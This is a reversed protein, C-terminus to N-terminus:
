FRLFFAGASQRRGDLGEPGFAGMVDLLQWGARALRPAIRAAASGPAACVAEPVEMVGYHLRLPDDQKAKYDVYCAAHGATAAMLLAGALCAPRLLPVLRKM